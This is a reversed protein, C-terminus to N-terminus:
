VPDNALLPFVRVLKPLRTAVRARMDSDTKLDDIFRMVAKMFDGVLSAIGIMVLRKHVEPNYAHRGGDHYGFEKVDPNKEHYDAEVGYTHIMACRAGYVDKGDYQYVQQPDAKLYKNVWNIFDTRTQSSQSTPMSLYAMVDIGIYTLIVAATTAGAKECTDIEQILGLIADLPSSTKGSNM